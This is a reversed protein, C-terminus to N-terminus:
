KKREEKMRGMGSKQRSRLHVLFKPKVQPISFSLKGKILVGSYLTTKKQQVLRQLNKYTMDGGEEEREGLGLGWLMFERLMEQSCLIIHVDKRQELKWTSQEFAKKHDLSLLDYSCENENTYEVQLIVLYKRIKWKIIYHQM